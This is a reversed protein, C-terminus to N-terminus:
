TTVGAVISALGAIVALVMGATRFRDPHLRLFVQRGAPRGVAILAILLALWPVSVSGLDLRGASLLVLASLIGLLAFCAALSDRVEGPTAGLRQFWLLLPPGNIGTTTTLAGTMFAAPGAPWPAAAPGRAARAFTVAEAVAAVVVVMGVAVQLTPKNLLGLVLVGAILGPVACAVMLAVERTRIAPRRREAFLMLLSLALTLVVMATLAQGPDLVHFLSPAVVLSFGFGTASQLAAGIVVAVAVIAM